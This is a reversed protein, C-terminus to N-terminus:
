LEERWPKARCTHEEKFIHGGPPKTITSHEKWEEHESSGGTVGERDELREM